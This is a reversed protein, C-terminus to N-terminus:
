LYDDSDYKRGLEISMSRITKSMIWVVMLLVFCLSFLIYESASLTNLSFSSEKVAAPAGPNANDTKSDQSPPVSALANESSKTKIYSLVTKIQDDNIFVDPMPVKNNDNFVKIALEDGAKVLSQSSKVWKQLWQEDRKSHIDQLDPGVLKGKGVSHCSACNSRFLQEGEQARSTAYMAILMGLSLILKIIKM